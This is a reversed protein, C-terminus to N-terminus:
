YSFPFIWGGQLTTVGPIENQFKACTVDLLKGVARNQHLDSSHPRRGFLHFIVGKHNKEQGTRDKKTRGGVGLEFRAALIRAKHSM